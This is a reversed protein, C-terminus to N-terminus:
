APLPVTFILLPTTEALTTLSRSEITLVNLVNPIFRSLKFFILSRKASFLIVIGSLPLKDTPNLIRVASFPLTILLLPASTNTFPVVFVRVELPVVILAVPPVVTIAPPTTVSEFPFTVLVSLLKVLVMVESIFPLAISADPLAITFTLPKYLSTTAFPSPLAISTCSTAAAPLVTVTVPPYLVMLASPVPLATFTLSPVTFMLPMLIPSPAFLMRLLSATFLKKVLNPIATGSPTFTPWYRVPSTPSLSILATFSAITFLPPVTFTLPVMLLTLEVPVLSLAPLTIVGADLATTVTLPSVLIMEVSAFLMAALPLSATTSAVPPVVLM